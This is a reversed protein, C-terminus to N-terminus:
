PIKHRMQRRGKGPRTCAQPTAMLLLPRLYARSRPPSTTISPYIARTQIQRPLALPRPRSSLHHLHLSSQCATLRPAMHSPCACQLGQLACLSQRGPVDKELESLSKPPGGQLATIKQLRSAGSKAALRERRLRAKTQAPSEGPLGTSASPSDAMTTTATLPIPFTAPSACQTWPPARPTSRMQKATGPVPCRFASRSHSSRLKWALAGPQKRAVVGCDCMWAGERAMRAMRAM